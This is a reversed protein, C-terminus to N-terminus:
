GLPVTGREQSKKPPFTHRPLDIEREKHVNQKTPLTGEPHCAQGKMVEVQPDSGVRVRLLLTLHHFLHASQLCLVCFM